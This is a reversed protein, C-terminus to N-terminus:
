RAKKRGTRSTEKGAQKREIVNTLRKELKEFDAFVSSLEGHSETEGSSIDFLFSPPVGLVEGLRRVVDVSPSRSDSELLSVYSKNVGLKDALEVATLRNADRLLRITSGLSKM